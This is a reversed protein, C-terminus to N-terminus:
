CSKRELGKNTFPIKQSPKPTTTHHSKRNQKQVPKRPFRSNFFAWLRDTENRWIIIVACNWLLKSSIKWSSSVAGVKTSATQQTSSLCRYRDPFPSSFWAMCVQRLSLESALSCTCQELLAAFWQQEEASSDLPLFSSPAAATLNSFLLRKLPFWEQNAISISFFKLSSKYSLVTYLSMPLLFHKTSTKILDNM